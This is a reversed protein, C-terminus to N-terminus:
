EHQNRGSESTIRCSFLEFKISERAVLFLFFISLYDAVKVMEDIINYDQFNCVGIVVGIDSKAVFSLSSAFRERASRKTPCILLHIEARHNGSLM